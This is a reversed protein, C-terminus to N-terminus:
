EQFLRLSDKVKDYFLSYLVGLYVAAGVAIKVSLGTINPQRGLYLYNLILLCIAMVTTSIVSPTFNRFFEKFTVQSNVIFFKIMLIPIIPFVILWTYAVGKVDFLKILLIFSVPMILMGVANYLKDLEPRGISIFYPPMLNVFSKFIGVFALIKLFYIAGEWKTGLVVYVFDEAILGIGTFIPLLILTFLLSFRLFVKNLSKKKIRLRSFYPHLVPKILENLKALPMDIFYIAIAYFGITKSDFTKGIIIQDSSTYVLWFLVGLTVNLGFKFAKKLVGLDYEFKIVPKRIVNLAISRIMKVILLSLLLSYFGFGMSAM